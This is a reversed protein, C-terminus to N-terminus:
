SFSYFGFRAMALRTPVFLWYASAVAPAAVTALLAAKMLIKM